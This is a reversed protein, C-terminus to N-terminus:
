WGNAIAWQYFMIRDERWADSVTIGRAGYRGYDPHHPKYCRAIMRDYVAALLKPTVGDVANKRWWKFCDGCRPIPKRAM